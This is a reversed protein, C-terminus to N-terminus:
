RVRKSALAANDQDARGAYVQVTGQHWRNEHRVLCQLLNDRGGLCRKRPQGENCRGCPDAITAAVCRVIVSTGM